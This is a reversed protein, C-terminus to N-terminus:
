TDVSSLEDSADLAGCDLENAESALAEFDGCALSLSLAAADDFKDTLSVLLL